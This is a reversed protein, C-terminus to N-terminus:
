VLNWSATFLFSRLLVTAKPDDNSGEPVAVELKLPNLTDSGISYIRLVRKFNMSMM